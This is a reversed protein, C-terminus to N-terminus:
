RRVLIWVGVAIMGLILTDRTGAIVAIRIERHYGQRMAERILDAYWAFVLGMAVCVVAIVGASTLTM